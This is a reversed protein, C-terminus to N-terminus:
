GHPIERRPQPEPIPGYIPHGEYAWWESEDLEPRWPIATYIPVGARHYPMGVWYWGEVTPKETEGNRHTYRPQKAAELMGQYENLMRVLDDTSVGELGQATWEGYGDEQEDRM